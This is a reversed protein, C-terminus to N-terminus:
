YSYMLSTGTLFNSIEGHESLKLLANAVAKLLDSEEWSGLLAIM